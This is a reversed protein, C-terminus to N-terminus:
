RSCFLLFLRRKHPPLSVQSSCLNLYDDRIQFISGLSDILPFLDVKVTPAEAMMLRLALRFLGGTKNSIMLMYEDQAPVTFTDRWCLELGQGRHLNVLEESFVDCVAPYSKLKSLRQM